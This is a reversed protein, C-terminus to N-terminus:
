ALRRAAVPAGAAARVNVARRNPTAELIDFTVAEGVALPLLRPAVDVANVYFREGTGARLYGYGRARDFTEVTGTQLGRRPPETRPWWKMPM